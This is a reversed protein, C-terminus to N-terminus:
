RTVGQSSPMVGHRIAIRKFEERARRVRSAVTGEPIELATGIERQTLGEIEFLVFATRLDETM